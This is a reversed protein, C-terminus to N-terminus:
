RTLKCFSSIKSGENNKVVETKGKYEWCRVDLRPYHRVCLLCEVLVKLLLLNIFGTCSSYGLSLYLVEFLKFTEVM